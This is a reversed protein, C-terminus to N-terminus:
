KILGHRELNIRLRRLKCMADEILIPDPLRQSTHRFPHPVVRWALRVIEADLAGYISDSWDKAYQGTEGNRENVRTQKKKKGVEYTDGISVFPIGDKWRICFM